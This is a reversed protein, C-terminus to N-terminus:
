GYISLKQGSDSSSGKGESEALRQSREYLLTTRSPSQYLFDGTKTDRFKWILAGTATDFDIIPSSYFVSSDSSSTPSSSDAAVSSDTTSRQPQSSPSTGSIGSLGVTDM